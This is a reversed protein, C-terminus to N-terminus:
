INIKYVVFLVRYTVITHRYPLSIRGERLLSSAGGAGPSGGWTTAPGGGRSM